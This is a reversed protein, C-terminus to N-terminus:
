AAHRAAILRLAASHDWSGDPKRPYKPDRGRITASEFLPVATSDPRAPRRRGHSDSKHIWTVQNLWQDWREREYRYRVARTELYGDVDLHLALARMGDENMPQRAWGASLPVALWVRALKDLEVRVQAQSLGTRHSLAAVDTGESHQVTTLDQMVTGAADIILPVERPLVLLHRYVNGAHRGLSHPAAFVDLNLVQLRASLERFWRDRLPLPSGPPVHSSLTRNPVQNGTSFRKSLRYRQGRKGEAEGVRVIWASEADGEVLPTALERLAEATTTKGYGIHLALRRCDAEVTTSAAQLMFLCLADLVARRSYTGRRARAAQSIRDAGWLGPMTDAREQLAQVAQVTDTLRSLYGTGDVDDTAAAPNAAVYEVAYRWAYELVTTSRKQTRPVRSARVRETRVHEFAPSSQLYPTLDSFQWHANAMAALVSVLRASADERATMPASLQELTKPSLDRRDGPVYPHGDSTATVGHPVQPTPAPLEAGSDLLFARFDTISETDARQTTLSSLAGLPRSAGGFRHVAGPPRVCGRIPNLLPTVDLSPLLDRALLAIERVVAADTPEDLTIWVHRGGTPGSEATLHDIRLEDLWLSLRGADRIANGRSVDFDFALFDYRQRDGSLYMAWPTSPAGELVSRERDYDNAITGDHAVISAVRVVDRPSLARTLAWARDLDLELGLSSPDVEARLSDLVTWDEGDLPNASAVRRSLPTLSQFEASDRRIIVDGRRLPLLYM